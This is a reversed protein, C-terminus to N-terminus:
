VLPTNKRRNKQTRDLGYPLASHKHRNQIYAIAKTPGHRRRRFLLYYPLNPIHRNNKEEGCYFLRDATARASTLDRSRSTREM